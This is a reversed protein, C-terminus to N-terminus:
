SADYAKKLWGALEADVDKPSALRVRHTVMSNFSGSAELRKTTPEDKLNIGVDVRTSTSPQIIAFQKSRRVSVYAKKPSLEVDGGFKRIIEVLADYIPKLGAKAGSYQAAVLDEGAETKTGADSSLYKHAALNAYGHGIGYESKLYKVIESHKALKSEAVIQLWEELTKGTSEKYNRIMSETMEEPSKAM